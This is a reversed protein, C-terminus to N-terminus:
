LTEKNMINLNSHYETFPNGMEERNPETIACRTCITMQAHRTQEHHRRETHQRKETSGDSERILRAMEPGSVIWRRLAAPNETLGVDGGDRKVSANKQEHAQDTAIFHISQSRPLM